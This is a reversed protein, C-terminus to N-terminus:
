REPMIMGEWRWNHNEDQQFVVLCGYIVDTPTCELVYASRAPDGWRYLQPQGQISRQLNAWQRGGDAALGRFVEVVQVNQSHIFAFHSSMLTRLRAEDKSAVAVRFAAFFTDFEQTQEMAAICAAFLLLALTWVAANVQRMQPGVEM